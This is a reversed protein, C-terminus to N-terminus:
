FTIYKCHAATLVFDKKIIAGGCIHSGFYRLSVQYPVEEIRVTMGGVIKGDKPGFTRGGRSCFSSRAALFIVLLGFLKM